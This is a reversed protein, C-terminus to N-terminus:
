GAEEGSASVEETDSEANRPDLAEAIEGAHGVKEAIVYGEREAVVAAAGQAAAQHGPVNLFHRSDARIEEYQSLALRVVEACTPDACECIFPVPIDVAYVGAAANIRENAERFTAQNLAIREEMLRDMATPTRGM